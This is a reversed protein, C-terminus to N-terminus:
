SLETQKMTQPYQHDENKCGLDYLIDMWCIVLLDGDGLNNCM